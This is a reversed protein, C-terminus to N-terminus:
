ATLSGGATGHTCGTTAPVSLPLHRLRRVALWGFCEAEMTAGRLGAAEGAEALVGAARLAAMMAPNRAGGGVVYVPGRAGMQQLTHAVGAATLACLTAAGDEVSLGDLWGLVADFDYRDASRPVPRQWFAIEGMARAVIGDDVKGAAALKGDKDYPEDTKAQVWADLLGAGPGCDSAAMAGDAGFWSINSVGGINLVGVHERNGLLAKHFLPVLPAGQGGAAMDRRRFDGVVAVGTKEALFHADGLQWTLGEDPLHRITQGHCGIVDVKSLAYGLAEIEFVARVYLESVLREVRLVENLPVSAGAGSSPDGRAVVQVRARVDEGYPVYAHALLKVVAEGDTEVLAADVGDLSTGSMLGIAKYLRQSEQPKM